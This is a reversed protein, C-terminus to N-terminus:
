VKLNGLIWFRPQCTSGALAFGVMEAMEPGPGLEPNSATAGQVAGKQCRRGDFISDGRCWRSVMELGLYAFTHLLSPELGRLVHISECSHRFTNSIAAFACASDVENEM